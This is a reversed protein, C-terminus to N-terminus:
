GPHSGHHRFSHTRALKRPKAPRARRARVSSVPYRGPAVVLALVAGPESAVETSWIVPPYWKIQRLIPACARSPTIAGINCYGHWTPRYRGGAPMRSTEGTWLGAGLNNIIQTPEYHQEASSLDM